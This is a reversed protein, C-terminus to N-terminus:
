KQFLDVPPKVAHTVKGNYAYGVNSSLGEPVVQIAKMFEDIRIEYELDGMIRGRFYLRGRLPDYRCLRFDGAFVYYGPPNNRTGTSYQTHLSSNLPQM